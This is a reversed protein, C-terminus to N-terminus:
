HFAHYCHLVCGIVPALNTNPLDQSQLGTFAFATCQIGSAPLAAQAWFLKLILCAFDEIVFTHVTISSVIRIWNVFDTLLAFPRWHLLVPHLM